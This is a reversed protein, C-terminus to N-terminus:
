STLQWVQIMGAIDAAAVYNQDPSVSLAYLWDKFQGGRSSGLSAIEKGDSVQCIRVQTDRGCSLLYNGDGSFQLDCVGYQHGSITRVIEGSDVNM